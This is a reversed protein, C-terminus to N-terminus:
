LSSRGAAESLTFLEGALIFREQSRFKGFEEALNHIDAAIVALAESISGEEVRDRWAQILANDLKRIAEKRREDDRTRVAAATIRAEHSIQQNVDYPFNVSATATQKNM